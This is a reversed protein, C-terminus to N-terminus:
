MKMKKIHTVLGKGLVEFDAIIADMNVKLLIDDANSASSDLTCGGVDSVKFPRTEKAKPKWVIGITSGGYKDHFFLALDGFAGRLEELYFQVPDYDVVPMLRRWTSESERTPIKTAMAIDVAQHQRPIHKTKLYIVLDFADLPPRFITKFDANIYDHQLQQQLMQLSQQALLVLRQLIPVTPRERTWHGILRDHPTCLCMLPLSSRDEAFKKQIDSIDDKSFENNLNVVLPQTKWDFTSLISLFRLFGVIPSGPATYPAPNIYCHAVVLEVAEEAIYDLMMHSSIWRKVLRVAGSFTNNQQQIGHLTSTLKPRAIYERQLRRSEETDHSQTTGDPSTYMKSLTIERMNGIKLRFVYGDKLVDLHAPAIKVFFAPDKKKLAQSLQLFYAAKLRRMAELDDPWKGSGELKCMVTMTPMYFPAPKDPHPLFESGTSANTTQINAPIAPMAPFVEAFRFVPAVGQVSKVSLPLDDLRHLLKSLQDLSQVIAMHEEEGTGYVSNDGKPKPLHLLSDLHQSLFHINCSPIDAHRNLIHKVVKSCVHRRKSILSSTMWVVAECISSDQFRRLESKDGWLERFERAEPAQAPPGKNIISNATQPNLLLGFMLSGVTEPGPPKETISWQPCATLQPQLLLIRNGLAQGMLKLLAPLCTHVYHGGHDMLSDELQLKSVSKKVDEMESIHFCQDFKRIFSVPKLLLTEFTNAETGELCKIALDAEHRVRRYVAQTINCCLNLYGSPDLFVIDCHEQFTHLSPRLLDSKDRCMSPPSTAWDTSALSVLTNRMVQYSSMMRHLKRCDLLHAVYMAMVFSSFCGYGKDLERQRLWVKLLMVGERVGLTDNQAQRLCETHAEYMMDQLVSTNYVPTPALDSGETEAEEETQQFWSKRVNSQSISFRSPKFAGSPLSIHLHVEVPKGSDGKIHIILIPKLHNGHHHSYKLDQVLQSTQLHSAIAALYLARKRLYRQNLFDKAQLCEKPMEAIIDVHVDPKICTGLAFSGVCKVSCPALFHFEGKTIKPIQMLPVKVKSKKLWKQDSIEHKSGSPLSMLSEKLKEVAMEIQRHRKEKLTVETLLETIQLKFLNSQFLSEAEKLTNLENATPPKYLKKDLKAAKAPPGDQADDEIDDDEEDDEADDDEGEFDDSVEEDDSVDSQFNDTENTRKM